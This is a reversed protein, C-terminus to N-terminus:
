LDKTRLKKLLKSRFLQEKAESPLCVLFDVPGEKVVKPVPKNLAQALATFDDTTWTAYTDRDVVYHQIPGIFAARAKPRKIVHRIDPVYSIYGIHNRGVIAEIQPAIAYGDV